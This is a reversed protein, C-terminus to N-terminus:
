EEKKSLIIPLTVMPENMNARPFSSCCQFSMTDLWRSCTMFQCVSIVYNYLSFRRANGTTNARWRYKILKASKRKFPKSGYLKCKVKGFLYVPCTFWMKSSIKKELNHLVLCHKFYSVHKGNRPYKYRPVVINCKNKLPISVQKNININIHFFVNSM